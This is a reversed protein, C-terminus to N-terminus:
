ENNDRLYLAKKNDKFKSLKTDKFVLKKFQKELLIEVFANKNFDDVTVRCGIVIDYDSTFEFLPDKTQFIWSDGYRHASEFSQSKIHLKYLGWRLDSEFSKYEKPYISMDPTNINNRGRYLYIFYVGWETLKGLLIDKKIKEANYQKRRSYEDKNTVLVREAFHECIRYIDSDLSYSNVFHESKM